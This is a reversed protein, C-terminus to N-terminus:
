LIVKFFKVKKLSHDFSSVQSCKVGVRLLDHVDAETCQEISKALCFKDKLRKVNLATIDCPDHRKGHQHLMKSLEEASIEYVRRTVPDEIKLTSKSVETPIQGEFQQDFDTGDVFAHIDADEKTDNGDILSQYM